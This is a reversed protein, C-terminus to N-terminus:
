NLYYDGNFDVKCCYTASDCPRVKDYCQPSSDCTGDGDLKSIIKEKVNTFHGNFIGNACNGAPLGATYYTNCIASDINDAGLTDIIHDNLSVPRRYTYSMYAVLVNVSGEATETSFTYSCRDEALDAMLKFNTAPFSVTSFNLSCSGPIVGEILDEEKYGYRNSCYYKSNFRQEFEFKFANIQAELAAGNSTYGPWAVTKGGIAVLSTECKASPKSGDSGLLPNGMSTHWLTELHGEGMYPFWNGCERLGQPPDTRNYIEGVEGVYYVSKSIVRCNLSATTNSNPNSGVLMAGLVCINADDRFLWEPNETVEITESKTSCSQCQTDQYEDVGYLNSPLEVKIYPCGNTKIQKCNYGNYEVLDEDGQGGTIQNSITKLKRIGLTLKIENNDYSFIGITKNCVALYDTPSETKSTRQVIEYTISPTSCTQVWYSEECTAELTPTSPSICTTPPGNAV